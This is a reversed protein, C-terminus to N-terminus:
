PRMGEAEDDTIGAAAPVTWGMAPFARALAGNPEKAALASLAAKVESGDGMEFCTDFHREGFDFVTYFEYGSTGMGEELCLRACQVRDERNKAGYVRSSYHQLWCGFEFHEQAMALERRAEFADLSLSKRAAAAKIADLSACDAKLQARTHASIPAPSLKM